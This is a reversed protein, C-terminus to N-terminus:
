RREGTYSDIKKRWAARNIHQGRETGTETMDRECANCKTWRINLRDRIRKAAIGYRANKERHATRENEDFLRIM